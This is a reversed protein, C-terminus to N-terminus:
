GSNPQRTAPNKWEIERETELRRIGVGARRLDDAIGQQRVMITQQREVIVALSTPIKTVARVLERLQVYVVVAFALLGGGEIISAIDM